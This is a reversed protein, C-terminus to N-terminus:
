HSQTWCIRDSLVPRGLNIDGLMAISASVGGTTPDTLVSIYPIRKADLEVLASTTKALEIYNYIKNKHKQFGPGMAQHFVSWHHM